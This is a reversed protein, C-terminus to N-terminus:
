EEREGEEVVKTKWFLDKERKAIILGYNTTFISL